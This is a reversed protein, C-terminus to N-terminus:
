LKTSDDLNQQKFYVETDMKYLVIWSFKFFAINWGVVLTLDIVKEFTKSSTGIEILFLDLINGIFM